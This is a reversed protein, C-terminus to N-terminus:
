KKEVQTTSSLTIRQKNDQRTISVSVSNKSNSDAVLMTVDQDSANDIMTKGTSMARLKDRYFAAIKEVSDTSDLAVMVMSGGPTQMRVSEKEVPEAGPYFPLGIESAEVKAGSMELVSTQGQADTTTIRTNGGSLDVKAQTGDKEIQSEIAKEIMKETVAEQAKGCAGLALSSAMLVLLTSRKINLPPTSM